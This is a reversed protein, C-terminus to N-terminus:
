TISMSDMAMNRSACFAAPMDGPSILFFCKLGIPSLYRKGVRRLLPCGFAARTKKATYQTRLDSM